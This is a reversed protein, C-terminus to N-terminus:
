RVNAAVWRLLDRLLIANQGVEIFSTGSGEFTITHVRIADKQSLITLGRFHRYPFATGPV